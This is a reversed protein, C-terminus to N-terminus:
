LVEGGEYSGCYPDYYHEGSTKPVGAAAGVAEGVVAGVEVRVGVLAAPRTKRTLRRM